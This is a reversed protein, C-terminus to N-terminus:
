GEAAQYSRELKTTVIPWEECDVVRLELLVGGSGWCRGIDDQTDRVWEKGLSELVPWVDDPYPLACTILLIPTVKM